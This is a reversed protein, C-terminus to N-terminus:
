AHGTRTSRSPWSPDGQAGARAMENNLLALVAPELQQHLQQRYRIFDSQSLQRKSAMTICAALTGSLYKTLADMAGFEWALVNEGREGQAKEAEEVLAQGLIVMLRDSFQRIEPEIEPVQADSKPM